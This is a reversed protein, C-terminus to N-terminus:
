TPEHTKNCVGLQGAASLGAEKGRERSGSSHCCSVSPLVCHGGAVSDVVAVSTVVDLQLQTTASCLHVSPNTAFSILCRIRNTKMALTIRPLTFM